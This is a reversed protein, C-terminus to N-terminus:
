KEWLSLTCFSLKRSLRSKYFRAEFSFLANVTKTKGINLWPFADPNYWLTYALLGPFIQEQLKFGANKFMENYELFEFGKESDEDFFDHRKYIFERIKKTFICNHTPEFNIFIGGENLCNYLNSLVQNRHSYVHHLGGILVICDYKEMTDFNIVDDQVIKGNLVNDALAKEVLTKSADFGTYNMDQSLNESLIKGGEGYGCMPELVNLQNKQVKVLSFFYKWLLKKYLLHNQNQRTSFYKESVSEFHEIQKKNVDM